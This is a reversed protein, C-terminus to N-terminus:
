DSLGLPNTKIRGAVRWWRLSLLASLFAGALLLASAFELQLFFLYYDRVLEVRLVAQSRALDPSMHDIELLLSYDNGPEMPGASLVMAASERTGRGHDVPLAKQEVLSGDTRLTMKGAIQCVDKGVDGTANRPYWIAIDRDGRHPVSFHVTASSGSELHIPREVTASTFAGRSYAWQLCCWAAIVFLVAMAVSFSVAERLSKSPYTSVM